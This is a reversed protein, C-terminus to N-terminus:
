RNRAIGVKPIGLKMLGAKQLGAKQIGAKMLGNKAIGGADIEPATEAPTVVFGVLDLSRLRALVDESLSSMPTVM